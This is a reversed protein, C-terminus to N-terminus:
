FALVFSIRFPRAGVKITGGEQENKLPLFPRVVRSNLWPSLTGHHDLCDYFPKEPNRKTLHNLRLTPFGNYDAGYEDYYLAYYIVEGIGLSDMPDCEFGSLVAYKDGERMWFSNWWRDERRIRSLYDDFFQYNALRDYQNKGLRLERTRWYSYNDESFTSEKRLEILRFREETLNKRLSFKESLRKLFCDEEIHPSRHLLYEGYIAQYFKVTFDAMNWGLDYPSVACTKRGISKSKETEIQATGTRNTSASVPFSLFLVNILLFFTLIRRWFDRKPVNRRQQSM